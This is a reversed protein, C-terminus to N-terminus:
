NQENRCCLRVPKMVGIHMHRGVLKSAPPEGHEVAIAECRACLLRDKPPKDTPSVGEGNTMNNCWCEIADHSVKGGNIITCGSKIRHILVGRPNVNFPLTHTWMRTKSYESERHELHRRIPHCKVKMPLETEFWGSGAFCRVAATEKAPASNFGSPYRRRCV